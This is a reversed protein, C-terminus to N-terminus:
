TFLWSPINQGILALAALAFELVSLLLPVAALWRSRAHTFVHACYQVALPAGAYFM